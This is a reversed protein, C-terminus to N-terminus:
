SFRIMAMYTIHEKNLCIPPRLPLSSSMISGCFH